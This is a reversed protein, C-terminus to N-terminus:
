QPIERLKTVAQLGTYSSYGNWAAFVLILLPHLVQHQADLIDLVAVVVFLLASLLGAAAFIMNGVLPRAITLLGALGYAIASGKLTWEFIVVFVLLQGGLGTHMWTPYFGFFGFIAASLFMTGPGALLFDGRQAM